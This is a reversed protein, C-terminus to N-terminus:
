RGFFDSASPPPYGDSTPLLLRYDGFGTQDIFVFHRNRQFYHWVEYPKSDINFPHRDVSNPPGMLIYIMGMDSKWGARYHAFHENAYVVRNYYEELVPNHKSSPNPNHGQWFRIFIEEKSLMHPEHRISDITKSDAVYMMEEAAEDLSAITLPLEPFHISFTRVASAIVPANRDASQKLTVALRYNGMPISDKPIDAFIKKVTDSIELWASHSYLPKNKEGFIETLQYLSDGTQPSYVEYFVPFSDRQSIVNGEINPIITFVGNARTSSMLLMVDSISPSGISYDRAVFSRKAMYTRNTESDTVAVQLTYSGPRVNFHRQSVSFIRENLTEDFSPCSTREDWAQELVPNGEEDLLQLSVEYSATLENGTRLFQLESYPIQFYFDLRSRNSEAKFNLADFFFHPPTYSHVRQLEVQAWAPLTMLLFLFLMKKM